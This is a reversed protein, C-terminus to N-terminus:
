PQRQSDKSVSNDRWQGCTDDFPQEEYPVAKKICTHFHLHDIYWHHVCYTCTKDSM